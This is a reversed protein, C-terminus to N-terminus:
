CASFCVFGSNLLYYRTDDDNNPPLTTSINLITHFVITLPLRGRKHVDSHRCDTDSCRHMGEQTNEYCGPTCQSQTFQKAKLHRLSGRCSSIIERLLVELDVLCSSFREWTEWEWLDRWPPGWNRQTSYKHGWLFSKALLWVISCLATCHQSKDVVLFVFPEERDCFLLLRQVSSNTEVFITINPLPWSPFYMRGWSTTM